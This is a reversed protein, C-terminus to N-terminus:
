HQSMHYIVNNFGGVMWWVVANGDLCPYIGSFYAEIETVAARQQAPTLSQIADLFISAVALPENPVAASSPSGDAKYVEYLHELFVQACALVL